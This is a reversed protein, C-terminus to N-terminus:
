LIQAGVVVPQIAVAPPPPAPTTINDGLGLWDPCIVSGPYESLDNLVIVNQIINGNLIAANFM